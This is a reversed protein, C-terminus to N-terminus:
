DFQFELERGGLWPLTWTSHDFGAMRLVMQLPCTMFRVLLREDSVELAARCEIFNRRLYEPSSDSFAGLRAAFARAVAASAPALAASLAALSSPQADDEDGTLHFEANVEDEKAGALSLVAPSRRGVEHMHARLERAFREHTDQAIGEAYASLQARTPAPGTTSFLALGADRQAADFDRAGACQLAVVHLLLAAKTSGEPEPYPCRRLFEELRLGILAPCLLFIGGFATASMRSASPAPGAQIERLLAATEAGGAERLLRALLESEDGHGSLGRLSELDEAEVRSLMRAPEESQKLAHRLRLLGDLFRALTVDPGLDPRERLLGLYLRALDRARVFTQAGRSTQARLAAVWHAYTGRPAVSQAHPLLCARVVADAQSDDLASLLSDLGGRRTLELMADRGTDADAALARAAAQGTSLSSLERLEGFYWRGWAGGALLDELFSALFDARDRFVVVNGGGRSITKLVDEHLARAWVGSLRSDDRALDLTCDVSLQEIFYLREDSGLAAFRQELDRALTSAAIQDLRRRISAASSQRGRPVSYLADLREVHIEPTRM